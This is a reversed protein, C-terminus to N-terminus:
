GFDGTLRGLENFTRGTNFLWTMYVLSPCMRSYTIWESDIVIPGSHSGGLFRTIKAFRESSYVHEPLYMKVVELGPILICTKFINYRVEHAIIRSTVHAQRTFSFSMPTVIISTCIQLIGSARSGMHSHEYAYSCTGKPTHYKSLGDVYTRPFAPGRLHPLKHAKPGYCM